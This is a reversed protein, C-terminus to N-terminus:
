NIEHFRTYTKVYEGSSDTYIYGTSPLYPEKWIVVSGLWLADKIKTMNGHFKPWCGSM